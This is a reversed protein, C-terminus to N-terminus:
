SKSDNKLLSFAKGAVLAIKGLKTVNQPLHPHGADSSSTTVGDLQSSERSCLLEIKEGQMVLFPNRPGFTEELRRAHTYFPHVRDGACDIEIGFVTAAITDM